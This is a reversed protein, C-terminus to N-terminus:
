EPLRSGRAIADDLRREGVDAPFGFLGVFFFTLFVDCFSRYDNNTLEIINNNRVERIKHRQSVLEKLLSTIEERQKGAEDYKGALEEDLNKIHNNAEAPTDFYERPPFSFSHFHCCLYFLHGFSLNAM